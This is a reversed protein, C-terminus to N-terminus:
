ADAVCEDPLVRGRFGLWYVGSCVGWAIMASWLDHSLFHAGRSQQALGFVLGFVIGTTLGARAARRNNERFVFYLSMLAYGSGAHAAPFCRAVRLADPRDGFLPVYPFRGGFPLLNWPCDVNTFHKLAGVIGVTLLMAILLYAARRRWSRMRRAGFSAMWALLAAIVVARVVWGGGIHLVAGTWMSHAGRWAGSDVDFFLRRAIGMDADTTAFATALVIFVALPWRM